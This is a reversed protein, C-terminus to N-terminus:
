QIYHANKMISVLPKSNTAHCLTEVAKWANELDEFTIGEKARHKELLPNLYAANQEYMFTSITASSTSTSTTSKSM